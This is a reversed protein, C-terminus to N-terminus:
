YINWFIGLWSTKIEWLIVLHKKIHNKTM